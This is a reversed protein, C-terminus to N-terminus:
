EWVSRTEGEQERATENQGGEEWVRLRESAYTSLCVVVCLCVSVDVSMSSVRLRESAYTSLCVVVCLCVSVDVSM